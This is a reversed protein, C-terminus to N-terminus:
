LLFHVFKLHFDGQKLLYSEHQICHRIRLKISLKKIKQKKEKKKISETHERTIM